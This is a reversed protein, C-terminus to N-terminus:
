KSIRQQRGARMPLVSLDETDPLPLWQGRLCLLQRNAHEIFWMVQETSVPDDRDALAFLALSVLGAGDAHPNIMCDLGLWATDGPLLGRSVYRQHWTRPIEHADILALM